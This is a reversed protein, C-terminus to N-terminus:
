LLNMTGNNNIMCRQNDILTIYVYNLSWFRLRNLMGVPEFNKRTILKSFDSCFKLNKVISSEVVLQIDKTASRHSAM